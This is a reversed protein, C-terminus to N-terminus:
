YLLFSIALETLFFIFICIVYIYGTVNFKILTKFWHQRYVRLFSIFAYTSVILFSILGFVSANDEDQIFYTMVILSLGYFLYAFSHLHLAHILHKIYFHKKRVYLLKLILAFIPILILMMLPLNKLIYEALQEEDARNVRILQRVIHEQLASIQGLQLSDYIQEDSIKRDDKLESILDWDLKEFVDFFGEKGTIEKNRPEAESNLSDITMAMPASSVKGSDNNIEKNKGPGNEHIPPPIIRLLWLTSSDLVENLDRIDEETLEDELVKRLDKIEDGDLGDQIMKIKEEGIVQALIAQDASDLEEIDDLSYNVRIVQGDSQDEISKKSALTFMFFFFLSIILYLRLPHAYTMRKGSVYLNTLAGPKFLFPVFSKAFKSDLAFFTNFFDAISMNFSVNNDTNEQGCLPCFNYVKDLLAHCNPCENTKRRIKM